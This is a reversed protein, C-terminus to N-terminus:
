PLAINKTHKNNSVFLKLQIRFKIRDNAISLGVENHRSAFLKKDTQM